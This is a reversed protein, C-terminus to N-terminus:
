LGLHPLLSALKEDTTMMVVACAEDFTAGNIVLGISPHALWTVLSAKATDDTGRRKLETVIKGSNM